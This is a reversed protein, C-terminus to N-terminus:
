APGGLNAQSQFQEGGKLGLANRRLTFRQVYTGDSKITHLVREVYYTGSFQQGVGRVLIPRKARM